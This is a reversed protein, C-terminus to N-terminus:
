RWKEKRGITLIAEVSDLSIGYKAALQRRAIAEQQQIRVTMASEMKEIPTSRLISDAVQKPIQIGLDAYEMYLVRQFNEANASDYGPKREGQMPMLVVQGATDAPKPQEPPPDEKCSSIVLTLFLLLYRNM